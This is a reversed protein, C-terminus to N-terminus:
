RAILQLLNGSNDRFIVNANQSSSAPCPGFAISAGRSQLTSVTSEFNDVLFGAKFPGRLLVRDSSAPDSAPLTRAADNAVLEVLLRDAQLVVVEVGNQKPFRLKVTMGLKQTYWQESAALDQVSLAVFGGAGSLAFPTQAGAVDDSSCGGFTLVALVVASISKLTLM